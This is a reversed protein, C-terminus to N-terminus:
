HSFREQQVRYLISQDQELQLKWIAREDASVAGDILKRDLAIFEQYKEYQSDWYARPDIQRVVASSSAVIGVLVVSAIVEIFPYDWLKKM